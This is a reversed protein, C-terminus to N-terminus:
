VELKTPLTLHTYSVAACSTLFKKLFVGLSLLSLRFRNVHKDAISNASPNEESANCFPLSAIVTPAKSSM